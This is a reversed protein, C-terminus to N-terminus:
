QGDLKTCNKAWKQRNKGFDWNKDYFYDLINNKPLMYRTVIIGSQFCSLQVFELFFIKQLQVVESQVYYGNKM